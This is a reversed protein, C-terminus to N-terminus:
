CYVVPVSLTWDFLEDDDKLLLVGVLTGASAGLSCGMLDVQTTQYLGGM